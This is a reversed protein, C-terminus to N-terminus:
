RGPLANKAPSVSLPLDCRAQPALLLMLWIRRFVLHCGVAITVRKKREELADNQCSFETSLTSTGLPAPVRHAMFGRSQSVKAAIIPPSSSMNTMVRNLRGSRTLGPEGSYSAYM